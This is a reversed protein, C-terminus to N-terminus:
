PTLGSAPKTESGSVPAELRTLCGAPTFWWEVSGGLEAALSRAPGKPRRM